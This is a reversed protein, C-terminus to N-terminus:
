MAEYKLEGLEALQTAKAMGCLKGTSQNKKIIFNAYRV